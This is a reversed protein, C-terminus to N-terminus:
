KIDGLIEITKEIEEFTNKYGFSFRISHEAREKNYINTVVRSPVHSGSKCASGSSVCVGHMDLYTLLFDTKFDKFYLNLIHSSQSNLDANVEYNIKSNEITKLFHKKLSSIYKREDFMKELSKAASFAGITNGTGGRKGHEQDGAIILPSIDRNAYLIGFNKTAGIKHSSAVLSNCKINKVNIDIHGFAQVADVHYWIDPRHSELYSGIENVPQITGVENNVYQISVLKTNDNINKIIDDPNIIGSEDVPAFVTKDCTNNIISSHEITTTLIECPNFMRLITNNGESAGSNFYINKEDSNLNQAIFSRSEELIKKAQRGYAHTSETNGDFEDLNNYIYKFIDERFLSTAAYDFYIM